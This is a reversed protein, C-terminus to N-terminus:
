KLRLKTYEEVQQKMKERLAGARVAKKAQAAAAQKKHIKKSSRSM